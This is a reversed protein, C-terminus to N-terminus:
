LNGRNRKIEKTKLYRKSECSKCYRTSGNTPFIFKEGCKCNEIRLVPNKERKEKREASRKEIRNKTTKEYCIKCKRSINGNKRIKIITNEETFEHNYKCHTQNKKKYCINHIDNSSRISMNEIRETTFAAKLRDRTEESIQRGINKKAIQKKLYEPVRPQNPLCSKMINYGIEPDYSKYRDLYMQEKTLLDKKSCLELFYICFNDKGYKDWSRQLLINYHKNRSLESIHRRVRDCMNVSSGIYIKNNVLNQIYYIGSSKPLKKNKSVIIEDLM